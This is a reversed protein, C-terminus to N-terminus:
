RGEGAERAGLEGGLGVVRAADLAADGVAGGDVEADGELGGGGNTLRLGGGGVVALVLADQGGLAAVVRADHGAGDGDDLGHRRQHDHIGEHRLHSANTCSAM